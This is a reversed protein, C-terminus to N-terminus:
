HIVKDFGDLPLAGVRLSLSDPRTLDPFREEIAMNRIRLADYDADSIEPADKLYYLYDHHAMEASIRALESQAQKKDLKDAAIKNVTM